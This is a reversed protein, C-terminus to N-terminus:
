IFMKEVLYEDKLLMLRSDTQSISYQPNQSLMEYLFAKKDDNAQASAISTLIIPIITGKM